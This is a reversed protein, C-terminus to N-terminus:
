NRLNIVLMQNGNKQFEYDVSIIQTQYNHQQLEKQIPELHPSVNGTFNELLPFIRVERAVRCMEQIAQLHFEYSFQESYTFLLHSCLALDFQQSTFFLNPLERNLYRGQKLGEKLDALFQNMAALRIEGQAEPTQIDQWVFRDFNAKLGEIIIPYTKLIRQQIEERTFQYIPDCSIVQNGLHTMEVNFSSPGAGCDLISLHLEDDNLNFMKRYDALSRGWPVVNDLKFVM